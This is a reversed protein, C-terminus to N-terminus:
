RSTTPRRRAPTSTLRLVLGGYDVVFLEGDYGEGFSVISYSTDDIQTTTGDKAAWIRGSCWDGYLYAGQLAYSSPGRYRYGGTVSCGLERGYEFQPVVLGATSCQAGPPFCHRGEMIPWGFNAGRAAAVTLMNVEEWSDHGVDALLLEGSLRDFSFRWPNRLGISWIEPRTGPIGVYPNDLPVSYPVGHDVDIRLLKGLLLSPDQARNSAVVPAGGDGISIYLYGDPGFQLTGGHHNPVDEPPQDVVFLIQASAPDGRTYRAVVTDGAKDVYQVFLQGNTAYHPHFVVSLLGGNDCCDVISQIDLFPTLRGGEFALVRGLQEAVFLRGSGDHASVVQVPRNLGIILPTLTIVIAALNM